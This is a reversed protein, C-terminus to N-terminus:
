LDTKLGNRIFLFMLSFFFYIDYTKNSVFFFSTHSLFLQVYFQCYRNFINIFTGAKQEISM